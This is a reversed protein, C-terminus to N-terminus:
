KTEAHCGSCGGKGACGGCADSSIRCGQPCGICKVGDKKSKYIYWSAGGVIAALIVILILNAM